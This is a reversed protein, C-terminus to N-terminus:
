FNFRISADIKRNFAASSSTSGAPGFGFGGGISNSTGFLTSSLNGIPSGANVNNFLNQANLSFTLNYKKSAGGGNGGFRGGRGGGNGGNDSEGGFGFTKSLRMNVTAFSSGTGYNRPIIANIDSVNSLDCFSNTLGLSNCRANLQAYTPRETFLSDGNTDQGTIINFPQGASIIVFPSLNLGFPMQLNGGVIFRQRVDLSSRGYDSSLDYSNSPFSGVGDTDSKANGLM